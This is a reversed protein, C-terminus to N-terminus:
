NSGSLPLWLGSTQYTPNKAQGQLRGSVLLKTILIADDRVSLLSLKVFFPPLRAESNRRQREKRAQCTKIEEAYPM